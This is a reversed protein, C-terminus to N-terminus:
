AVMSPRPVHAWSHLFEGLREMARPFWERGLGFGIRFHDRVDWCDGPALLLGRDVAALCFPRAGTGSVLRPFATMGGQPRVWDLVDHYEDILSELLQLNLRAEERTRAWVKNRNKVAIEAFFEAMPTNSITIYERANMYQKRLQVNREVAWGLRLGGLSFAKSFDGIVAANPLRAASVTQRGHYIPHYVEDSVFQIGRELAFDHLATMEADSLTAGTPNHPSNVLLIKTRADALHKVEDLDVQYSNERRLRYSRVELGLSEPVAQHPPFCPAPIIVNAGPEAALFFVVFLAEAAGALV